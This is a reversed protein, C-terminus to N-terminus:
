RSVSICQRLALPLLMSLQSCVAQACQQRGNRSIEDAWVSRCCCLLQTAGEPYSRTYIKSQSISWMLIQPSTVLGALWVSIM